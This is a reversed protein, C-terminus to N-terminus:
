VWERSPLIIRRQPRGILDLFNEFMPEALRQMPAALVATRAQIDKAGQSLGSCALEEGYAANGLWREILPQNVEPHFQLGYASQGYRFAQQECTATRALQVAGDPLAHAHVSM